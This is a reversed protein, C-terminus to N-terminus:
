AGVLDLDRRKKPTKLKVITEQSVNVACSMEKIKEVYLRKFWAYKRKRLEKMPPVIGKPLSIGKAVHVIRM